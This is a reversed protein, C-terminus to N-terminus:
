YWSVNILLPADLDDTGVTGTFQDDDKSENDLYLQNM